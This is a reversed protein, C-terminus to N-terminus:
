SALPSRGHVLSRVLQFSLIPHHLLGPAAQPLHPQFGGLLVWAIVVGFYLHEISVWDFVPLLLSEAVAVSSMGLLALDVPLSQLILYEEYGAQQGVVNQVLDSQKMVKPSYAREASM